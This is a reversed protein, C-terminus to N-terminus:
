SEFIQEKRYESSNHNLISRDSNYFNYTKCFISIIQCM